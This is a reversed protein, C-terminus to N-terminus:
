FAPGYGLGRPRAGRSASPISFVQSLSCPPQFTSAREAHVHDDVNSKPAMPVMLAAGATATAEVVVGVAVQM